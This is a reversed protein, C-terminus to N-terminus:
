WILFSKGMLRLIAEVFFYDGYIIPVHEDEKRGYLVTGMQVIGDEEVNWNCHKTELAELMKLAHEYYLPKEFEPVLDAIQLLGCAAIATATTDWIVPEAPARFDCLSVYGTLSVNSIFYHAVKKAGELYCIDGTHVYSLAFGYIAWAQGRSWSSGSAYGQGVPHELVTGDNPDFAVIHHCSGDGRLVEGLATDAHQNAIYTFRPDELEKAAWHLIPINMLCDVIMWGTRDLNWARIFKGAPNYRGALLNAAHLGRVRSKENGTLRYDAVASHLWMFGVDHHLTIFDDLAKDFAEETHRATDQYLENGTAHYMQWLMGAWFGNTWFQLNTERMDTYRGNEPIYPIQDGVRLCEAQLKAEIKGFIEQVREKM